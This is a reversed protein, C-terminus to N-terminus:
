APAGSSEADVTLGVGLLVVAILLHLINDAMNIALLSRMTDLAVFGLLTVVAYVAGFGLNFQKSHKEPTSSLFGAAIAVLGSAVHVLDHVLNAGFIAGEEAAGTRDQAEDAAGPDGVIPNPFFGIIGVVLLVIGFVKAVSANSLM